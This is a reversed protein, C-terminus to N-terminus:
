TTALDDRILDAASGTLTSKANPWEAIAVVNAYGYQQCLETVRVAVESPPIALEDALDQVTITPTSM